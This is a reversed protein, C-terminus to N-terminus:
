TNFLHYFYAIWVLRHFQRYFFAVGKPKFCNGLIFTDLFIETHLYVIKPCNNQIPPLVCMEKNSLSFYRAMREPRQIRLMPAIAHYGKKENENM